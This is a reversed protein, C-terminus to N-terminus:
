DSVLCESWAEAGPSGRFSHRALDPRLFCSTWRKKLSREKAFTRVVFAIGGLLGLQRDSLDLKGRIPIALISIIQRGLFNFFYM